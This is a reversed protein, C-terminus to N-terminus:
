FPQRWKYFCHIKKKKLCLSSHPPAHTHIWVYPGASMRLSIVRRGAQSRKRLFSDWCAQVCEWEQKSTSPLVHLSICACRTGLYVCVCPRVLGVRLCACPPCAYLAVACSPSWSVLKGVRLLGESVLLGQPDVSVWVCCSASDPALLGM